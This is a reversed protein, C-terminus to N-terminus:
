DISDVMEREPHVGVPVFSTIESKESSCHDFQIDALDTTVFDTGMSACGNTHTILCQSKNALLGCSPLCYISPRPLTMFRIKDIQAQLIYVRSRGMECEYNPILYRQRNQVKTQVPTSILAVTALKGRRFEARPREKLGNQLVKCKGQIRTCKTKETMGRDRM